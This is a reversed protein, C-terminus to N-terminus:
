DGSLLAALHARLALRMKEAPDSGAASAARAIAILRDLAREVLDLLLAAKSRYRYHLSGPLMRAAQAVERVTADGYGRQRFVRAAADLLRDRDFRPRRNKTM